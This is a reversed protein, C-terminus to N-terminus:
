SLFPTTRWDGREDYGVYGMPAVIQQVGYSEPLSRLKDRLSPDFARKRLSKGRFTRTKGAQQGLDRREQSIAANTGLTL